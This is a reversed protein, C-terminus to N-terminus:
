DGQSKQENLRNVIFPILTLLYIVLYILFFIVMLIIITIKTDYVPLLLYGIIFSVLNAIFAFLLVKPYKFSSIVCVVASEILVTLIESIVLLYWYAIDDNVYQLAINMTPNLIFNLISVTIFLKLDRWKLLMYIATEFALTISLPFLIHMLM